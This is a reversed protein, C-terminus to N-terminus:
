RVLETEFFLEHFADNDVIAVQNLKTSETMELYSTTETERHCKLQEPVEFIAIQIFSRQNMLRVSYVTSGISVSSLLLMSYITKLLLTVFSVFSQNM